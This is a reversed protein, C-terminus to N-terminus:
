PTVIVQSQKQGGGADPHSRAIFDLYSDREGATSLHYNVDVEMFELCSVLDSTRLSNGEESMKKRYQELFARLEAVLGQALPNSSTHEYIVGKRETEYTSKLSQVAELVDQDNISTLGATYALVTKELLGLLEHFTQSTVYLRQRRSPDEQTELMAVYKKVWHYAQGSTLFPCESPCPIEIVRKEGCCQPCISSNKAPCFRKGKRQNCQVCKM